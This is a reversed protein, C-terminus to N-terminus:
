IGRNKDLIKLVKSNAKGINNPPALGTFSWPFSSLLRM